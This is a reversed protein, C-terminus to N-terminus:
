WLGKHGGRDGGAQLPVIHLILQLAKCGHGAGTFSSADVDLLEGAEELERDVWSQLLQKSEIVPYSINASVKQSEALNTLKIQRIQPNTEKM